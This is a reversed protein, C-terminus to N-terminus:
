LSRSHAIWLAGCHKCSVCYMYVHDIILPLTTVVPTKLIMALNKTSKVYHVSAEWIHLHHWYSPVEYVHRSHLIQKPHYYYLPCFKDYSCKM